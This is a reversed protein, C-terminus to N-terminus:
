GSEHENCARAKQMEILDEMMEPLFRLAERNDNLAEILSAVLSEKAAQDAQDNEANAMDYVRESASM